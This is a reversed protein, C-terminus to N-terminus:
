HASATLELVCIVKPATEACGYCHLFHLVTRRYEICSRICIYLFVSVCFYLLVFISILHLLKACGNCHLFHLSSRHVRHLEQYSFVILHGWLSYLHFKWIIQWVISWIFCNQRLCILAHLAFNLAAVSNMFQSSECKPRPTSRAQSRSESKMLYCGLGPVLTHTNFRISAPPPQKFGLGSATIVLKCNKFHVRVAKYSQEYQTLLFQPWKLGPFEMHHSHSCTKNPKWKFLVVQTYIMGIAGTELGLAIIFSADRSCKCCVISVSSNKRAM